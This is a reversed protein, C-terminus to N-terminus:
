LAYFRPSLPDPQSHAITRYQQLLKAVKLDEILGQSVSQNNSITDRIHEIDRKLSGLMLYRSGFRKNSDNPQKSLENEVYSIAENLRQLYHNKQSANLYQGYKAEKHSPEQNLNAIYRSLEEQTDFTQQRMMPIRKFTMGQTPPISENINDENDDDGMMGGKKITTRGGKKKYCKKCQANKVADMYSVGNKSSWKKVHDIWSNAM